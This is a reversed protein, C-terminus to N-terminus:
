NLLFLRLLFTHHQTRKTFGSLGEPLNDGLNYMTTGNTERTVVRRQHERTTRCARIHGIKELRHGKKDHWTRTKLQRSNEICQPDLSCSSRNKLIVNSFRNRSAQFLRVTRRPAKMAMMTHTGSGPQIHLQQYGSFASALLQCANALLSKWPPLWNWIMSFKWDSHSSVAFM